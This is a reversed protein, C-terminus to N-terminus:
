SHNTPKPSMQLVNFNSPHTTHYTYSTTYIPHPPSLFCKGKGRQQLRGGRENGKVIKKVEIRLEEMFYEFKKHGWRLDMMENGNSSSYQMYTSQLSTKPQIWALLLYLKSPNHIQLEMSAQDQPLSRKEGIKLKLHNFHQTSKGQKNLYKQDQHFGDQELTQNLFKEKIRSWVHQIRWKVSTSM